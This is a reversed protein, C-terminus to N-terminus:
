GQMRQVMKKQFIIVLFLKMGLLLMM